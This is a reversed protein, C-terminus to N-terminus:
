VGDDRNDRGIKSKDKVEKNQGNFGGCVELLLVSLSFFV